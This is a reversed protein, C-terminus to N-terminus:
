WELRKAVEPPISTLKVALWITYLLEMPADKQEGLLYPGDEAIGFKVGFVNALVSHLWLAFAAM